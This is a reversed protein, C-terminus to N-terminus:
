NPSQTFGPDHKSTKSFGVVKEQVPITIGCPGVKLRIAITVSGDCLLQYLLYLLLPRCIYKKFCSRSQLVSQFFAVQTQWRSHMNPSFRLKVNQKLSVICCVVLRQRTLSM